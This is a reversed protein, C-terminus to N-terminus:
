YQVTITGQFDLLMQIAPYILESTMPDNTPIGIKLVFGMAEYKAFIENQEQETIGYPVRMITDRQHTAYLTGVLTKTRSDHVFKVKAAQTASPLFRHTQSRPQGQENFFIVTNFEAGPQAIQSISNEISYERGDAIVDGFRLSFNNIFIGQQAQPLPVEALMHLWLRPSKTSIDIFSNQPNFTTQITTAKFSASPHSPKQIDVTISKVPAASLLSTNRKDTVDQPSECASFAITASALLIFVRIVKFIM